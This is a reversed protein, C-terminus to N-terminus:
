GRAASYIPDVTRVPVEPRFEESHREDNMLIGNNCPSALRALSKWPAVGIPSAGRRKQAGLLFARTLFFEGSSVRMQLGGFRVRKSIECENCLIGALERHRILRESIRITIASAVPNAPRRFVAGPKQNRSLKFCKWEAALSRM